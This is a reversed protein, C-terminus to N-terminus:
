GNIEKILKTSPRFRISRGSPIARREGTLPNYGIKTMLKRPQFVGFGRLEVRGGKAVHKMVLDFMSDTIETANDMDMNKFQVAVSRILDVRKM